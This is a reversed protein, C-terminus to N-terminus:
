RGQQIARTGLAVDLLDVFGSAIGTQQAARLAREAVRQCCLGGRVALQGADRVWNLHPRM